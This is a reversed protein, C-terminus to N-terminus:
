HHLIQWTEDAVDSGPCRAAKLAKVAREESAVRWRAGSRRALIVLEGKAFDIGIMVMPLDEAAGNFTTARM